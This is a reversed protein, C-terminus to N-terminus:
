PTNVIHVGSPKLLGVEQEGEEGEKDWSKGASEEYAGGVLATGQWDFSVVVGVAAM